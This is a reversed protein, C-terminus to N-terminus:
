LFFCVEILFPITQEREYILLRFTEQIATLYKKELEEWINKILGLFVYKLLNKTILLDCSVVHQCQLLSM